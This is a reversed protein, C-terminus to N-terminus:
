EELGDIVEKPFIDLLHERRALDVYKKHSQAITTQLIRLATNRGVGEECVQLVYRFLTRYFDKLDVMDVEDVEEQIARKILRISNDKGGQLDLCSLAIPAIPNDGFDADQLAEMLGQTILAWGIKQAKGITDFLLSVYFQSSEILPGPEDEGIRIDFRIRESKLHYEFTERTRCRKRRREVFGASYFKSLYKSATTTHINLEAAIDSAISWGRSRLVDLISLGYSGSLAELAESFRKRDM